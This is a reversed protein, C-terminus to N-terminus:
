GRSYCLNCDTDIYGKIEGSWHYFYIPRNERVVWEYALQLVFDDDICYDPLGKDFNVSGGSDCYSVFVVFGGLCHVSWGM